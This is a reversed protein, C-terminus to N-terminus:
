TCYPCPIEHTNAIHQKLGKKSRLKGCHPCPVKDSDSSIAKETIDSSSNIEQGNKKKHKSNMHQDLAQQSAFAKNCDTCKFNYRTVKM